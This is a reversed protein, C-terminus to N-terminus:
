DVFVFENTMMLGHAYRPWAEDPPQASLFERAVALERTTPRRGFLLTYLRATKADLTGAGLVSRFLM